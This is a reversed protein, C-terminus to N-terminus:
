LIKKIKKVEQLALRLRTGSAKVGKEYFKEGEARVVKMQEELKEILDM